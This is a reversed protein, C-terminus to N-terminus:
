GKPSSQKDERDQRRADLLGIVFLGFVIASYIALSTTMEGAEKGHTYVLWPLFVIRTVAWLLVPM